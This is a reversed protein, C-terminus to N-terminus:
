KGTTTPKRETFRPSDGHARTDGALVGSRSEPLKFGTPISTDGFAQSPDKSVTFKWVTDEHICNDSLDCTGAKLRATYTEGPKLVVSDPFLGWTGDGIQDIRAPVQAGRSDILVFSRNDIGRVPASFFAKVVTDQYAASAGPLPYTAVRLANRDQPTGDISIVWNSVAMPVPPAGEVVPPETSPKRGDCLGGLVCPELIFNQNTDAMNGLFHLAVVAEVSQYYVTASVAVPGRTRSPVVVEYRNIRKEYEPRGRPKFRTDRLFSDDFLDGNGDNDKFRPLAKSNNQDIVKGKEDIPMGEKNTVLNLPSAYPLDLTPCGDGLSAVAKFQMSYPDASGAPIKWNCGPFNPDVMEETTLNGVGISVRNWVNDKIPLEKGTALDYAHIALWSTRGEPFGTPFNHGSGTNAITISLPVSSNEAAAEPGHLDM